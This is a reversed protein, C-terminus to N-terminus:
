VKEVPADREAAVARKGCDCSERCGEVRGEAVFFRRLVEADASAGRLNPEIMM